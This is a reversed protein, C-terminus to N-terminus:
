NLLDGGNCTKLGAILVKKCINKDDKDMTKRVQKIKKLLIQWKVQLTQSDLRVMCVPTGSDAVQFVKKFYNDQVNQIRNIHQKTLGIWSDSNSLIKSIIKSKFQEVPAIAVRHGLLAPHNITNIIIDGREIAIPIRGDLTATISAACGDEHIQNGLYKKLKSNEIITDGMM